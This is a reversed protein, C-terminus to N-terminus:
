LSAKRLEGLVDEANRVPAVDRERLELFTGESHASEVSGPVAMLVRNLGRANGFAARSGSRTTAEVMVMGQALAAIIRNRELFRSQNPLTGPPYESVILGGSRVIDDFVQAHAPPYSQDVGCALVVIIRGGCCGSATLAGRHAAIDIGFAGGSVVTTHKLALGYGIDNAIHQGYDTCARSGIIAVAGLAHNHLSALDAFEVGWDPALEDLAWQGNGRVWLKQPTADRLDNLQEPWGEGGAEIVRIDNNM